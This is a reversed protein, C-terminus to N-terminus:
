RRARSTSRRCRCRAPSAGSSTTSSCAASMTRNWCRRSPRAGGAEQGPEAFLDPGIRWQGRGRSRAQGPGQRDPRQRGESSHRRGGRANKDNPISCRCNSRRPWISPSFAWAAPFGEARRRLSVKAAPSTKSEKSITSFGHDSSIIINTTAALGLDDLAKRLQALDNDANKIGALSTPGNIGPTVTNLSDGQNHQRATPIARGSCWCSRSTARRSCRCCWRPRRRRRFLGAARHQRGHHGADQRRRGQRQRRALPTALPLGAKALAAKM